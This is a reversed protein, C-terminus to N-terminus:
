ITSAANGWPALLAVAVALVFVVSVDFTRSRVVPIWRAPLVLRAVGVGALVGALTYAATRGDVSVAVVCVLGVALLVGASVLTRPLRIGSM